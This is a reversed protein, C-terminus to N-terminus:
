AFYARRIYKGETNNKKAKSTKAYGGGRLREMTAALRSRGRLYKLRCDGSNGVPSAFM